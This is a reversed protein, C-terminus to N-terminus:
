GFKGLRELKMKRELTFYNNLNNCIDYDNPFTSYVWDKGSKCSINYIFIVNSSINIDYFNGETIHSNYTKKCYYRKKDNM